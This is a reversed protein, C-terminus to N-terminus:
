AASLAGHEQPPSGWCQAVETAVRSVLVLGQQSQLRAHLMQICQLHLM